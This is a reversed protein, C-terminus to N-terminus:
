CCAGNKKKKNSRQHDKQNLTITSNVNNNENNLYFSKTRKDKNTNVRLNEVNAKREFEGSNTRKLFSNSKKNEINWIEILAEFADAM